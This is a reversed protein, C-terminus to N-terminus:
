DFSMIKIPEVKNTVERIEKSKGETRDAIFQVAWPKGELAFKFVRYMIVDLKTKGDITGDEDGIKRLIDPISQLGRPRGKGVSATNGDVFQGKENRNVGNQIPESELYKSM